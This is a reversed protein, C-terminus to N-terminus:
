SRSYPASELKDSVHALLEEATFPKKLYGEDGDFVGHHAITEGPYGSMYLVRATAGEAVVADALEPGSMQPMIVDTLLLNVKAGTTRLLELAAPGSEALFVNYGNRTLVRSVIKRVGEEDEVVLVSENRGQVPSTVPLDLPADDLEETAPLLVEFSSGLELESDIFIAGGAQQVIGYVTSLGLGTGRARSKTTFFPEFARDMVERTMGDGTDSIRMVVFRGAPLSPGTEIERNETQITLKGGVPMADRANLVLNMIIQELNAPDMKIRWIGASLESLLLIDEGITRRLL